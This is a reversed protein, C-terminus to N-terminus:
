RKNKQGLKRGKEFYDLVISRLVWLGLLDLEVYCDTEKIDKLIRDEVEKHLKSPPIVDERRLPISTELEEEDM